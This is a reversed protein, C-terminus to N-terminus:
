RPRLAEDAQKLRQYDPSEPAPISGSVIDEEKAALQTKGELRYIEALEKRTENIGGGYGPLQQMRIRLELLHEAHAYNTIQSRHDVSAWNILMDLSPKSSNWRWEHKPGVLDDFLHNGEDIKGKATLSALTDAAQEVEKATTVHRFSLENEERANNAFSGIPSSTTIALVLIWFKQSMQLYTM